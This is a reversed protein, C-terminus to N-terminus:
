DTTLGAAQFQARGADTLLGRFFLDLVQRAQMEPPRQRNNLFNALMIGFLSHGMIEVVTEARMPRMAGAAILRNLHDVWRQMTERRYQFYVPTGEQRFFALEQLLLQVAHPRSLFFRLYATTAHFSIQFPDTISVVASEIEEDLQALVQRLAANFLERKNRFYRYITGKGVGLADALQQTDTATYGQQGFLRIAVELIQQRRRAHLDPDVPRGRKRSVSMNM